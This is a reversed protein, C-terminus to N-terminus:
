KREFLENLKNDYEKDTPFSSASGGDEYLVIHKGNEIGYSMMYLWKDNMTDLIYRNHYKGTANVIVDETALCVGIKKNYHAKWDLTVLRPDNIILTKNFNRIYKEAIDYCKSQQELNQNKYDCSALLVTLVILKIYKGM